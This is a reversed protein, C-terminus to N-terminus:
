LPGILLFPRMFAGKKYRHKELVLHLLHKKVGFIYINKSM